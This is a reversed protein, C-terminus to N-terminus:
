GFREHWVDPDEVFSMAFDLLCPNYNNKPDAIATAFMLAAGKGYSVFVKYAYLEDVVVEATNDTSGCCM